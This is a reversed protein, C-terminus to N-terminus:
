WWHFIFGVTFGLGGRNIRDIRDRVELSDIGSITYSKRFRSSCQYDVGFFISGSKENYRIGLTPVFFSQPPSMYTSFVGGVFESYKLGSASFYNLGIYPRLITEKFIYGKLGGSFGTGQYQQIAIGANFEVIRKVEYNLVIGYAANTSKYGGILGFSFSPYDQAILLM